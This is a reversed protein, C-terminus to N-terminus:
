WEIGVLRRRAAERVFPDPAAGEEDVLRDIAATIAGPGHRALYEDLAEAYLQSRSTQKPKVLREAREFLEDPVYITVRM